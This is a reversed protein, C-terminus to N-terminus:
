RFCLWDEYNPHFDIPEKEGVIGELSIEEYSRYIKDHSLDVEYLGLIYDPFGQKNKSCIM